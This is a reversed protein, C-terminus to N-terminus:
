NGSSIINDAINAGVGSGPKSHGNYYYWFFSEANEVPQYQNPITLVENKSYNRQLARAM